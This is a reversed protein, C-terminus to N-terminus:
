YISPIQTCKLCSTKGSVNCADEVTRWAHKCGDADSLCLERLYTCDTTQSTSKNLCLGVAQIVVILPCCFYCYSLM